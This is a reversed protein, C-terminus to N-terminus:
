GVQRIWDRVISQIRDVEIQPLAGTHMIINRSMELDNFRSTVWAQDPFLDSFDDWNMIIIQALNGFLTYGILASSRPTHYRNKSEKERLKEVSQKIKSPVAGNWWDMGKRALLRETILERVSNELCFFATFVSSMKSADYLIRPSFGVEDVEITPPLTSAGRVSIGLRELQDLSNEALMANFIFQKVKNM